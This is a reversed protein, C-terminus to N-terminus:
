ILAFKWLSYGIELARKNLKQLLRNLITTAVGIRTLKKTMM